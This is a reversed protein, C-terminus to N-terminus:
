IVVFYHDALLALFLLALYITSYRFSVLPLRPNENAIMTISIGIYVCGLLLAAVGYLWGSMQIAVPVLSIVMLLVTYVLISWRTYRDGHTLPLMPVGASKYDDKRDIALAWFHPPTWMFIIGVLILAPLEISNTIAVWGLLPPASGFLGGIVINQPTSHKLFLSYVIGYGFWSAINLWAALPNVFVFLVVVGIVGLVGAYVGGVWPKVRGTAVPRHHTRAMRTDIHADVVHNVVAASGAVLAIGLLGTIILMVSVATEVAMLMGVLACGLMLLVVRPKTM